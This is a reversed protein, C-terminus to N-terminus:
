RLELVFLEEHLSNQTDQFKVKINQASSESVIFFSITWVTAFNLKKDLIWHSQAM